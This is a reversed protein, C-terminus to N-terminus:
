DRPVRRPKERGAYAAVGERDETAPYVIGSIRRKEILFETALVRWGSSAGYVCYILTVVPTVAISGAVRCVFVYPTGFPVPASTRTARPFAGAFLLALYGSFGKRPGRLDSYEGFRM